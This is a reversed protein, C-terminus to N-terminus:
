AFCVKDRLGLKGSAAPMRHRRNVADFVVAVAIRAEEGEAVDRLCETDRQVFQVSAAMLQM